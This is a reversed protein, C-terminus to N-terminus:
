VSYQIMNIIAGVGMNYDDYQKTRADYLRICYRLYEIMQINVVLNFLDYIYNFQIM